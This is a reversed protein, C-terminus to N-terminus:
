LNISTDKSTYEQDVQDLDYESADVESYIDANAIISKKYKTITMSSSRISSSAKINSLTDEIESIAESMPHRRHAEELRLLAAEWEEDTEFPDEVYIVSKM